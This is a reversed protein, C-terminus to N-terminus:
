AEEASVVVPRLLGAGLAGLAAVAAALLMGPLHSGTADAILGHVAPGAAQGVGFFLTVFGLAAPALRPGLMDGCAAAMIAPISWATLGFLVASTTFGAVTPLLGFLTYSTAQILYVVVLAWKRGIADSVAGWIVGCLLSCWGMTMFLSGAAQQSYGGEAMLAKVFFTMYIIYSFGFAVYVLGLAWIARSRYVDAWGLPRPVLPAPPPAACCPAQREAGVPRLGADAPRNRLIAYAMLALVLTAGGFFLWCARWGQEAYASLVAPVTAGLVILAVSSGSATLGAALGRRRLAFWGAVLGMVPVNSAGSGIGTVARWLAAEANSNSLGTLVMGVAAIALGAAIVRRPGFHSALAGGLASLLLYGILNATALVGGATNDMGLGLQMAPLVMSYGFRALGLSAFVVLVGMLLVIWGYHLRPTPEVM